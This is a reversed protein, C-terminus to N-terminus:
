SRNGLSKPIAHRSIVLFMLASRIQHNPWARMAQACRIAENAKEKPYGNEIARVAWSRPSALEGRSFPGLQGLSGCRAADPHGSARRLGRPWGQALQPRQLSTVQKYAQASCDPFMWSLRFRGLCAAADIM